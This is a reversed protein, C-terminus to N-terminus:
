GRIYWLIAYFILIGAVLAAAAALYAGRRQRREARGFAASAEAPDSSVAAGARGAFLREVAREDEAPDSYLLPSVHTLHVQGRPDIIINRAHLAGHVIGHAHLAAVALRVERALQEVELASLGRGLCQELSKGEIYQWVLWVGQGDREVGCLNAVRSVPLERVRSLREAISPHIQGELLCDDDLRKRFTGDHPPREAAPGSGTSNSSGIM